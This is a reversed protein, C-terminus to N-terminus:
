YYYCYHLLRLDCEEEEEKKEEKMERGLVTEADVSVYFRM